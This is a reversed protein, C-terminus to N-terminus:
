TVPAEAKCGTGGIGGDKKDDCPPERHDNRPAPSREPAELPIGPMRLPPPESSCSALLLAIFLLPIRRM